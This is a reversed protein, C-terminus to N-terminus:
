LKGMKKLNELSIAISELPPRQCKDQEVIYFQTGAAEAAAFISTWDMTGEGVEAFTKEDDATMDKVHVLPVRGSLKQIYEVASKGGKVVWFTDLESQVLAPDTSGFLIDLGTEGEFTDFEFAHNHYAFGMGREKCAAGVKNFTEALQRYDDGSKRRDESLFPCVVFPNGLTVNYDLTAELDNELASLPTHSGALKLNLDSLVTKLEEATHGYNGALEVGEYGLAAVKKLTGVFDQACEDRVTYLQLMVPIRAM